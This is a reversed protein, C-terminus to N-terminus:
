PSNVLSNPVHLWFRPNQGGVRAIPTKFVSVVSVTVVSRTLFQSLFGGKEVELARRMVSIHGMCAVACGGEPHTLYNTSDPIPHPASAPQM